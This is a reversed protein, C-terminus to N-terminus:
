KPVLLTQENGGEQEHQCRWAKGDNKIMCHRLHLAIEKFKGVETDFLAERGDQIGNPRIGKLGLSPFHNSGKKSEIQQQLFYKGAL